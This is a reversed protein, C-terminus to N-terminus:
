VTTQSRADFRAYRKGYAVRRRESPRNRRLVIQVGKFSSGDNLDIFGFEKGDRVTRAWGKVTVAKGGFEDSKEYLTKIAIRKEM